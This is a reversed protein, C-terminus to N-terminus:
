ASGVEKRWSVQAAVEVCRFHLTREDIASADGENEKVPQTGITLIEVLIRQQRYRNAVDVRWDGRDACPVLPAVRRM